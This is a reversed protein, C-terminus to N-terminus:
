NHLHLNGYEEGLKIHYPLIQERYTEASIMFKTDAQDEALHIMGYLRGHLNEWGSVWERLFACYYDFMDRVFDQNILLDLYFKEIGYIDYSFQTSGPINM